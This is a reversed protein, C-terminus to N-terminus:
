SSVVMLLQIYYGTYSVPNKDDARVITYPKGIWVHDSIEAFTVPLEAVFVEFAKTSGASLSATHRVDYVFTFNGTPLMAKGIALSTFYDGDRIDIGVPIDTLKSDESINCRAFFCAAFM